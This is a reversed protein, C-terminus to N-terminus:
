FRDSIPIRSPSGRIPAGPPCPPASLLRRSGTRIHSIRWRHDLTIQADVFEFGNQDRAAAIGEDAVAARDNGGLAKEAVMLGLDPGVTSRLAWGVRAWASVAM